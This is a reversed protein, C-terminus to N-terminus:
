EQSPILVIKFYVRGPGGGTIPTYDSYQMDVVLETNTTSYSFAIGQYVQPIQEWIVNDYSIYVLIGDFDNYFNDTVLFPISTSFTKGDNSMAWQSGAREAYVTKNAVTYYNNVDKQCSTFGLIIVSAILFLLRKM